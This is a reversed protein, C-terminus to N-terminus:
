IMFRPRGSLRCPPILMAAKVEDGVFIACSLYNKFCSRTRATKAYPTRTSLMGGPVRPKIRVLM